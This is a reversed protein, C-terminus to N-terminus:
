EFDRMEKLRKMFEDGQMTRPKPEGFKAYWRKCFDSNNQSDSTDSDLSPKSIIYRKM